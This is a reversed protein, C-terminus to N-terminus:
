RHKTLHKKLPGCAAKFNDPRQEVTALEQFKFFPDRRGGYAFAYDNIFVVFILAGISLPLSLAFPIHDKLTIPLDEYVLGELRDYAGPYFERTYDLSYYDLPELIYNCVHKQKYWKCIFDGPSCAFSSPLPLGEIGCLPGLFELRVLNEPKATDGGGASGVERIFASTIPPLRPRTGLSTSRVATHTGVLSISAAPCPLGVDFCIGKYHVPHRRDHGELGGDPVGCKRYGTPCTSSLTAPDYTPRVGFAGDNRLFVAPTGGQKVCLKQDSRTSWFTINPVNTEPLHRCGHLKMTSTEPGFESNTYTAAEKPCVNVQPITMPPFSFSTSENFGPPCSQDPHVSTAEIIPERLLVDKEIFSGSLFPMMVTLVTSCILLMWLMLYTGNGPRMWHNVFAYPIPEEDPSAQRSTWQALNHNIRPKVM